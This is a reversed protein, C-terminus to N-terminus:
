TENIIGALPYLQSRQFRLWFSPHPISKYPVKAVKRCWITAQEGLAIIKNPQLRELFAPNVFKDDANRANIWYLRHEPIEANELQQTVWTSSGGRGIFPWPTYSNANGNIQEGILLTVGPYFHGVGPGLNAPPRQSEVYERIQLATM